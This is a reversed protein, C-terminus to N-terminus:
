NQELVPRPFQTHVVDGARDTPVESLRDFRRMDVWRHGEGFLGYRRQHLIQEILESDSMGGAYPDLGAAARVANIANVAETNNTGVNAEAYILLLEENRIMAVPDTDSSYLTVQVSGQLNDALVPVTVVDPDLPTTKADVRNDGAEANALWTPHVTYLDQNAVNFLPNREDNGSTGFTHYVGLDMSGNIDMFSEGLASRAAAMDNQYLAVRAAVARNFQNFTAPTNFGSFGSSLNFVFASGGSTLQGSAEDLLAKLGTLSEEYSLFPGLQDPDSVDLRIGNQYQRNLELLLLCAKITKAFGEISNSQETTLSAASNQTATILNNANRTARYAAAFARTTIFGNNDLNAGQVGVLEGTFRPDINNLDYYERGVISVTWYYYEMDNRIVAELGHALLRLDALTAGTLLSEATPANPNDVTEIDCAQVAFLLALGLFLKYILKM